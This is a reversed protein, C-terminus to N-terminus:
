LPLERKLKTFAQFLNRLAKDYAILADAFKETQNRDWDLRHRRVDAFTRWEDMSTLEQSARLLEEQSKALEAKAEEFADGRDRRKGGFLPM